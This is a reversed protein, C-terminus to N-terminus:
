AATLQNMGLAFEAIDTSRLDTMSRDLLCQRHQALNGLLLSNAVSCKESFHVGTKRLFFRVLFSDLARRIPVRELVVKASKNM